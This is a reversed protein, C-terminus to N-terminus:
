CVAFTMNLQKTSNVARRSAISLEIFANSHLKHQIIASSKKNVM